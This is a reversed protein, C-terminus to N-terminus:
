NTASAGTCIARGHVQGLLSSVPGNGNIGLGTRRITETFLIPFDHGGIHPQVCDGRPTRSCLARAARRSAILVM